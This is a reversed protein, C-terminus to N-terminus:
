GTHVDDRQKTPPCRAQSRVRRVMRQVNWVCRKLCSTTEGQGFMKEKKRGARAAPWPTASLWKSVMCNPLERGRWQGVWLHAKVRQLVHLVCSRPADSIASKPVSPRLAPTLPPTQALTRPPTAHGHTANARKRKDRFFSPKCCRSAVLASSDAFICREGPGQKGELLIASGWTGIAIVAM